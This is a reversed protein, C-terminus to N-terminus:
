GTITPIGGGAPAPTPTPTPVPTPTPAPPAAALADAKLRSTLGELNTIATAVVPDAAAPSAKISAIEAAVATEFDTLANTLATVDASLQTDQDQQTEAMIRVEERLQHLLIEIRDLQTADPNERRFNERRLECEMRVINATM